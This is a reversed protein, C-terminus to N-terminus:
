EKFWIESGPIWFFGLNSEGQEQIDKFNETPFNEKGPLAVYSQCPSPAKGKTSHSAHSLFPGLIAPSGMQGKGGPDSCGCPARLINNKLQFPIVISDTSM